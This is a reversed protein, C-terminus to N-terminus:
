VLRSLGLKVMDDLVERVAEDDLIEAALVFKRPRLTRNCRRSLLAIADTIEGMIDDASEVNQDVVFCGCKTSRMSIRRAVSVVSPMPRLSCGSIRKMATIGSSMSECGSEDSDSVV